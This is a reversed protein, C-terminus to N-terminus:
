SFYLATCLIPILLFHLRSLLYLDSAASMCPECARGTAIYCMVLSTLCDPVCQLPATPRTVQRWVGEWPGTEPPLYISAPAQALAQINARSRATIGAASRIFVAVLTKESSVVKADGIGAM